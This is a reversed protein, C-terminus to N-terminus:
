DSGFKKGTFKFVRYGYRFRKVESGTTVVEELLELGLISKRPGRFGVFIRMPLWLLINVKGSRVFCDSITVNAAYIKLLVENKGPVPREVEGIQLVAPPGYKTCVVAKMKDPNM